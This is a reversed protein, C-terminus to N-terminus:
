ILTKLVKALWVFCIEPLIQYFDMNNAQKIWVPSPEGVCSINMCGLRKKDAATRKFHNSRKNLANTVIQLATQRQLQCFNEVLIRIKGGVDM